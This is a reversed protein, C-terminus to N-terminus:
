PWQTWSPSWGGGGARGTLPRRAWRAASRPLCDCCPRLRQRHREQYPLPTSTKYEPPTPTPYQPSVRGLSALLPLGSTLSYTSAAPRVNCLGCPLRSPHRPRTPHAGAVVWERRSRPGHVCPMRSSHLRPPRPSRTDSAHSELAHKCPPPPAAPRLPPAGCERVGTTVVVLCEVGSRHQLHASHSIHVFSRGGCGAALPSASPPRARVGVM